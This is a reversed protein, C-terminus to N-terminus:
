FRGQTFVAYVGHMGSTNDCRQDSITSHLHQVSQMENANKM